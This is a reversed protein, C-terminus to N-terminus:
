PTSRIVAPMSYSGDILPTRPGYFRAALQFLDRSSTPLWNRAQDPDSPRDPQLYFTVRDDSVSYAGASLLYSTVSYRNEPNDIFYGHADYIPLEWFETVPPLDNMAFTVTYAHAGDLPRGDSDDFLYAITHSQYPVPTGWAIDNAGAKARLDADDHFLSSQLRWGNMDIQKKEFTNRADRRAQMFGREIAQRHEDTLAAPDFRAGPRVGLASIRDLIERETRSDTRLPMTPDDLIMNLLQLFDVGTMSTGIDSIVDMRPFAPYRGREVPQDRLDPVRGGNAHWQSLPAARVGTVARRAGSMDEDTRTTVAVRVAISFSQSPSRVIQTGALGVPLKGTWRPGVIVYRQASNGTFQSGIMFFWNIYPDVAQVSWYREGPVEDTEIVIPQASVDFVGGSYLTSANVTTAYRVSADFLELTPQMRNIGRYAPNDQHVAFVHRLEYFGALGIGWDFSEATLGAVDDPPISPDPVSSM